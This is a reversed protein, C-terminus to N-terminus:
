RPPKPQVVQAVTPFDTEGALRLINEFDPDDVSAFIIGDAAHTAVFINNGADDRLVVTHAPREESQFLYETRVRM